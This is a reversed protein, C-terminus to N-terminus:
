DRCNPLAKAAPYGSPECRWNISSFGSAEPVLRVVGGDAVESKLHVAIVGEAEIDIFAVPGGAHAAPEGLGIAAVSGPWTGMSMYYESVSVKFMSARMLAEGAEARQREFEAEVTMVARRREDRTLQDDLATRAQSSSREVSEALDRAIDRAEVRAQDLNVRGAEAAAALRPELVLRDYAFLALGVALLFAVFNLLLTRM